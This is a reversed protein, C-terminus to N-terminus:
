NESLDVPMLKVFFNGNIEGGGGTNSKAFKKYNTFAERETMTFFARTAVYSEKESVKNTIKNFLDGALVANCAEIGM